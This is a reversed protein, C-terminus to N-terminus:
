HHRNKRTVESSNILLEELLKDDFCELELVSANSPSSSSPQALSSSSTASPVHSYHHGGEPRLNYEHPFNLIAMSGRMQFAARDYARAAQEATSFTGLWVRTGRRNPDRIEAAYKGWPRKRVGRYRVEQEEGQQQQEEEEEEEEEQTEGKMRGGTRSLHVRLERVIIPQATSM